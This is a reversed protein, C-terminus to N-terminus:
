EAGGGRRAGGRLGGIRMAQSATPYGRHFIQRNVRDLFKRESDPLGDCYKKIQKSQDFIKQDEATLPKWTETSIRVVNNQPYRIHVHYSSGPGHRAHETGGAQPGPYSNVTVSGEGAAGILGDPDIMGVLYGGVYTFANIGGQLGIPTSKVYRGLLPVYDRHWNYDLNTEKPYLKGRFRQNCSFTALVQPNENAAAIGSPNAQDSRWVTKNDSARTIVWPTPPIKCCM